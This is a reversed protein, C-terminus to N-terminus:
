RTSLIASEAFIVLACGVASSSEKMSPTVPARLLPSRTVSTPKPVNRVECRFARVPRLGCVPFGMLIEALRTAFNVGPASSFFATLLFYSPGGGIRLGCLGRSSHPKKAPVPTADLHGHYADFSLRPKRVQARNKY